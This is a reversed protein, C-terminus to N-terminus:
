GAAQGDGAEPREAVAEGWVEVQKRQDHKLLQVRSESAVRYYAAVIPPLLLYILWGLGAASYAVLWGFIDHLVPGIAAFSQGGSWLKVVAPLSGCFNMLGVTVVLHNERSREAVYAGLTPLMALALVTLTPLFLGAVPLLVTWFLIKPRRPTGPRAANAQKVAQTM